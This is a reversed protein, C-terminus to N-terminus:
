NVGIARKLLSAPSAKLTRIMWLAGSVLCFVSASAAVLVGIPWVGAISLEIWFTVIIWGILSGAITSFVTLAMGLLLYEFAVSKVVESMRSGLAHMVSAEYIQRSRNVAVVSAMVLMSAALSVAAVLGLAKAASGLIERAAALARATRVTVVNPFDLGIANSADVDFGEELFATGIHRSIFPELAGDTFVGELWFRTEFRAQEYIVALEAELAQGMIDFRLQDGVVLGLQNAERDEMAFLPKGVYGDPWWEGEVVATNDIGQTRYSLKHEDNAELARRTNSSNSLEEGNVTRLRGLVLPTTAVQQYGPLAKVTDIFTPLQDNQIDYFALAPTREPVTSDLTKVTAAIVLTSGVLLTLAIGLSILMPRLSTGPRHMGALAMRWAFRGEFWNHQGAKRALRTVLRVLGELLLLLVLVAVVFYFGIQPDPVLVLLTVVLMVMFAIAALRYSTPMKGQTDKAGKILLAPRMDLTRGVAPLSFALASIVGFLLAQVAPLLLASFQTSVPLREALAFAGWWAICTGAVAGLLSAFLGLLLVQGVYVFSIQWQRAGLSQLTALSKYKTQLYAGVSNAVGLGGILVTSCGILLLVSAVQDLRETVFEGREEVSQVEWSADPFAQRLSERWDEVDGDIRARYEYDVLSTPLLLGTQALAEEAILVPPGRVDARLSRDPQGSIFARVQMELDGIYVTDGVQADLQDALVPDLAVGWVGENNQQVAGTVTLDPSFEISGYLPYANDVSQLEVVTFQGAETGMMTRLEVLLSVEANNDLWDRQEDSVPLRDSVRVDGGFLLREQSDLGGRVLQLMSACVAILAIGLFLCTCFVWLARISLSGRLDTLLFRGLSFLSNTFLPHSHGSSGAHNMGVVTDSSSSNM